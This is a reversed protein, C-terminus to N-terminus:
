NNLEMKREERLTDIISSIRLINNTNEFSWVLSRTFKCYVNVVLRFGNLLVSPHMMDLLSYKCKRKGVGIINRVCIIISSVSM